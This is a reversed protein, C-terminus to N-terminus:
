LFKRWTELLSCFVSKEWFWRLLVRWRCEGSVGGGEKGSPVAGNYGVIRM